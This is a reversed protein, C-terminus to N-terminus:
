KDSLTGTKATQRHAFDLRSIRTYGDAMINGHVTHQPQRLVKSMNDTVIHQPSLKLINLPYCRFSLSFRSASVM